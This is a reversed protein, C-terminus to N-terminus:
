GTVMIHVVLTITRQVWTDIYAHGRKHQQIKQNRLLIQPKSLPETSTHPRRTQSVTDNTLTVERETSCVKLVDPFLLGNVCHSM